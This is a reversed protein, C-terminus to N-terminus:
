IRRNLWKGSKELTAQEQILTFVSMNLAMTFDAKNMGLKLM